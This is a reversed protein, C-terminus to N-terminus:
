IKEILDIVSMLRRWGDRVEEAKEERGARASELMKTTIVYALWDETREDLKLAEINFWESVTTKGTKENTINICLALNETDKFIKASATYPGKRSIGWGDFDIERERSM